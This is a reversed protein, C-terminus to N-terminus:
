LDFGEYQNFPQLLRWSVQYSCIVGSLGDWHRVDYAGRMLLVVVIADWVTSPIDKINTNSSHRFRDDLGGFVVEVIYKM